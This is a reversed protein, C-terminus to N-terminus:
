EDGYDIDYWPVLQENPEDPTELFIIADLNGLMSPRHMQVKYAYLKKKEPKEFWSEDWNWTINPDDVNTEKGFYYIMLPTINDEWSQHRLFGNVSSEYGPNEALIQELKKLKRKM